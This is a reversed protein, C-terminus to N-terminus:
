HKMVEYVRTSAVIPCEQALKVAEDLDEAQIVTYGTISDKAFPLDKIGSSSIERGGRFGGRDVQKDAISDFWQNWEGMQEPTPKEFGCHLILFDKVDPGRGTTHRHDTTASM